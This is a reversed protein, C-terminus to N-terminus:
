LKKKLLDTSKIFTTQQLPNKMDKRRQKDRILQEKLKGPNIDM